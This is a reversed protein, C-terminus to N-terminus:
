MMRIANTPCVSLCKMCRECKEINLKAVGFVTIASYPCNADCYGCGVCRNEDIRIM